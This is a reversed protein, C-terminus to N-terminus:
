AARGDAVLQSFSLGMMRKDQEALAGAPAADFSAMADVMQLVGRYIDGDGFATAADRSSAALDTPMLNRIAAERITRVLAIASSADGKELVQDGVTMGGFHLSEEADEIMQEGVAMRGFHSAARADNRELRSNDLKATKLWPQKIERGNWDNRTHDIVREVIGNRPRRAPQNAAGAGDDYSLAVDAAFGISGDNRVYQTNALIANDQSGPTREFAPNPSLGISVINAQALSRLESQQSVGDQNADRWVRFRAFSADGTDLSGNGNSDFAALGELDSRAGPMDSIFAIENGSSIRGDGNRDLALLGDDPGVWGTRQRQGDNDTDFHVRSDLRSILEVGDGDLDLVIPPLGVASAIAARNWVTGNAFRIEELWDQKASAFHNRVTITDSQGAVTIVLDLGGNALGFTLDTTNYTSFEIRDIETTGNQGNEEIFDQGFNADFRYIDTGTDGFMVDNDAGGNFIDDGQWGYLTDNGAGGFATDNGDDCWLQDVGAGGTLSDNGAGGTLTDVGDGGILTDNGNEGYINDNGIGGDISDNDAKGNMWDDGDGGDMVDDGADGWFTDLGAGGVLTDNGNWGYLTDNGDNGTIHDNGDEGYLGNNGSNGIMINAAASGHSVTNGTGTQTLNEVNAGTDFSVSTEILDTGASAAETVVDATSDVVYTDNGLGGVMTDNGALGELRNNGSNGTLVNNDSLGTANFDGTGTLTINELFTGAVLAYTQGIAITDSGEGTLEVITDSTDVVYTDNGIGGELRDAGAGGDLTDNGSGAVLTDAGDLGSLSDNGGNSIFYNDAVSGVLTDAANSSTINETNAIAEFGAYGVYVLQGTSLNFSVSQTHATSDITDVGDGGDFTDGGAGGTMTDNGAGGFMQDTGDEGHLLDNGEGGYLSDDENGGYLTDNGDGGNITDNGSSGSMSNNGTNGTMLNFSGNGTSNINGSGTLVVNEVYASMTFTVSTEITDLGGASGEGVADGTNDVVFTDDGAGGTM